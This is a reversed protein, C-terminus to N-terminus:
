QRAPTPKGSRHLKTWDDAQRQIALIDSRNMRSALFPVRARSADDGASQALLAWFYAKNFNQPVGRGAWYYAGLTSQALVHGKEAAMSFWRVAEAYDQPVDSGTAYRLGLDFEASADGRNAFTKLEDVSSVDLLGPRMTAAAAPTVSQDESRSSSERVGALLFWLGVLVGIGIAILLLWSIRSRKVPAAFRPEDPESSVPVPIESAPSQIQDEDVSLLRETSPVFQGAASLEPATAGPPNTDEGVSQIARHVAALVIEAMRQLITKDSESFAQSSPAFIEILGIVADSSRIPAAMISSIGLARCSEPDVRPDTECDECYLLQGTKICEGSFGSGVELRTGLPPADQGATARCVMADLTSLAIAAGTSGTLVLTREVVIKLAADLDIAQTEVETKVGETALLASTYSQFDAAAEPQAEVSVQVSQPQPSIQPGVLEAATEETAAGALANEFLWEKLQSADEPFMKHFRVGTRGAVNSWVVRGLTHFYAKPNSLDVSFNLIEGVEMQSTSLFSMGDESLDLIQHLDLVIGTSNGNMGAFAATQARHRMHRRRDRGTRQLDRPAPSPTASSMM